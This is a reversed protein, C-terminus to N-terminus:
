SYTIYYEILMKSHFKFRVHRIVSYVNTIVHLTFYNNQLM